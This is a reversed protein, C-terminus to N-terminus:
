DSSSSLASPFVAMLLTCSMITPGGGFDDSSAEALMLDSPATETTEANDILGGTEGIRDGRDGISMLMDGISAGGEGNAM